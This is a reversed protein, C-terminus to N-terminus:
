ILKLLPNLPAACHLEEGLEMRDQPFPWVEESVKRGEEEQLLSQLTGQKLLLLCKLSTSAEQPLQLNTKPFVQRVVLFDYTSQLPSRAETRGAYSSLACIDERRFPWM